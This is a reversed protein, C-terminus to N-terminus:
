LQPFLMGLFYPLISWPFLPVWIFPLEKLRQGVRLGQSVNFFQRDTKIAFRSDNFRHHVTGNFFFDFRNKHFLIKKWNHKSLALIVWFAKQSKEQWQRPAWYCSPCRHMIPGIPVSNRSAWTHGLLGWLILPGLLPNSPKSSHATLNLNPSPRSSLSHTLLPNSAPTLPLLTDKYVDQAHPAPPQRSCTRSM